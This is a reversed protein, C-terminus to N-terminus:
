YTPQLNKNNSIITELQQNEVIEKVEPISLWHHAIGLYAKAQTFYDAEFNIKIHNITHYYFSGYKRGILKALELHHPAWLHMPLISHNIIKPVGLIGRAKEPVCLNEAQLFELLVEWKEMANKTGRMYCELGIKSGVTDTVDLDLAVYDVLPSLRNLAKQLMLQDGNWGIADLFPIITSFGDMMICLRYIHQPRSIMTGVQFVGIGDPMANVIQHLANLTSSALTEGHITELGLSMLALQNRLKEFSEKQHPIGFFFSPIPISGPRTQDMDFELWIDDAQDYLASKPDSWAQAFAGVKQWAIDEFWEKPIADNTELNSLVERGYPKRSIRLLFDSSPKQVGLPCEFGFFNTAKEPLCEAVTLIKRFSKEGILDKPLHPIVVSRLIQSLQM